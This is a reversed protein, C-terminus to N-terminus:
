AASKAVKPGMLSRVTEMLQADVEDAIVIVDLLMRNQDLEDQHLHLTSFTAVQFARSEDIVMAASYGQARRMEGHAAASTSLPPRTDNVLRLRCILDQFLERLHGTRETDSLPLQVLEPVMKVRTLWEKITPEIERELVDAVSALKKLTMM